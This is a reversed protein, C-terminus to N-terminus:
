PKAKVKKQFEILRAENAKFKDLSQRLSSAYFSNPYTNLIEEIDQQFKAQKEPSKFDVLDENQIFYAFDGRDKILNWVQFDEGIPETITIKIPKSEFERNGDESPIGLFVKLYYDGIEQFAYVTMIQKDKFRLVASDSLGSTGPVANSLVTATSKIIELPKIVKGRKNKNGWTSNSYKKFTNGDQSILIQLYGSEVDTGFLYIDSESQNKIEINLSVIEGLMYSSKLQQVEVTLNNTSETKGQVLLSFVILGFIIISIWFISKRKINM